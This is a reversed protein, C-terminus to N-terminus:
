LRVGLQQVHVDYVGDTNLLRCVQDRMDSFHLSDFYWAFVDGDPYVGTVLWGDNLQM